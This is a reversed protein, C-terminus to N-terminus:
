IDNSNVSGVDLKLAALAGLVHEMDASISVYVCITTRYETSHSTSSTVTRKSSAVYACTDVHTDIIETNASFVKTKVGSWVEISMLCVTSVATVFCM